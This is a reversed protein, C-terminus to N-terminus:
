GAPLRRWFALRDAAAEDYIEPGVNAHAALQEPPDFTRGEANSTESM